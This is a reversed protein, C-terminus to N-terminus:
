VPLEETTFWVDRVPHGIATIRNGDGRKVRVISGKAKSLDDCCTVRCLGQFWKAAMDKFRMDYGGFGQHTGGFDLGVMITPIGHGEIGFYISDIIANETKESM